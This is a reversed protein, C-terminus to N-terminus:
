AARLTELDRRIQLLLTLTDDAPAHGKELQMLMILDLVEGLDGNIRRLEASGGRSLLDIVQETTERGHELILDIPLKEDPDIIDNLAASRTVILNIAQELLSRETAPIPGKTPAPAVTEVPATAVRASIRPRERRESREPLAPEPRRDHLLTIRPSAAREATETAPVEPRAKRAPPEKARPEEDSGAGAAGERGRLASLDPPAEAPPKGGGFLQRSVGTQAKAAGGDQVSKDRATRPETSSAAVSALM